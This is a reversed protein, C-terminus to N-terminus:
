LAPTPHLQPAPAELARVQQGPRLQMRARDRRQGHLAVRALQGGGAQVAADEQKRGPHAQRSNRSSSWGGIGHGIPLFSCALTIVGMALCASAWLHM